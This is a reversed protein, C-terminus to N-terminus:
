EIGHAAFAAKSEPTALYRLFQQAGAANAVATVAVAMYTTYNQIAEPLPGILRLGQDRYLLIEIIACFGIERGKGDILHQLMQPGNSYRVVKAKITDLMDWNRLLKEIYIGSSAHNFVVSDAALLSRKLADTTSIDPVPAGNRAAIGVGVRGVPIRQAGDVKGQVAFDDIAAPPVIVVDAAHGDAMLKYIAPTTAWTIAVNCGSQTRFADAAAILGPEIAGGSLVKIETM